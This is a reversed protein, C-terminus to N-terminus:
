GCPEFLREPPYIDTLKVMYKPLKPDTTEVVEGWLGIQEAQHDCARMKKRGEVSTETVSQEFAKVWVDKDWSGSKEVIDLFWRMGDYAEGAASSPLENYKATFAQVFKTNAPSEATFHYRVATAVGVSAPGVAKALTEDQLVPGFLAIKKGLDVQGAQKLFTVADSGTTISFASDAGSKAIKDIIVSFDRNGLPPFDVGVIQIGAASARAQFLDWGRRAAEYDPIVGYVKKLGRKKAYEVTMLIEMSFNNSTRFSYKAGDKKTLADDVSMTILHPIKRQETLSQLASTVASSVGGFVLHVGGAIHRTAKQVAPQPKTESDEWVIQIPVGGVQNQREALAVEVGKRMDEGFIGYPGSLALVGAIKFTAPKEAAWAASAPGFAAAAACFGLTLITKSNM